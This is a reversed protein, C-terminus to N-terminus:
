WRSRCGPRRDAGFAAFPHGAREPRKPQRWDTVSVYLPRGGTLKRCGSLFRDFADARFMLWAERNFHNSFIGAHFTAGAFQGNMVLQRLVAQGHSGFGVIVCEYDEKARGDEGFSVSEWPPCIRVLARAALQSPDFVNVYGFGYGNESIQLM